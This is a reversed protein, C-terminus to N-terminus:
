KNKPFFSMITYHFIFKFEYQAPFFSMNCGVSQSTMNQYIYNIQNNILQNNRPVISTNNNLSYQPSNGYYSM